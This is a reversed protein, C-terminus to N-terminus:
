KKALGFREVLEPKDSLYKLVKSYIVGSAVVAILFAAMFAPFVSDQSISLLSSVGSWLLMLAVLIICTVLFNAVTAVLLFVARRGGKTM